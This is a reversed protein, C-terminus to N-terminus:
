RRATVMTSASSSAPAIVSCSAESNSSWLAPERPPRRRRAPQNSGIRKVRQRAAISCKRTEEFHPFAREKQSPAIGSAFGSRVKAPIASVKSRALLAATEAKAPSVATIVLRTIEAKLTPEGSVRKPANSNTPPSSNLEVVDSNPATDEIRKRGSPRFKMATSSVPCQIVPVTSRSASPRSESM